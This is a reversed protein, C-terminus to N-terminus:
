EVSARSTCPVLPLIRKIGQPPILESFTTRMTRVVNACSNWVETPVDCGPEVASLPRKDRAVSPAPGLRRGASNSCLTACNTVTSALAERSSYTLQGGYPLVPLIIPPEKAQM